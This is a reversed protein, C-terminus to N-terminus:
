GALPPSSTLTAREPVIPQRLAPYAITPMATGSWNLRRRGTSYRTAFTAAGVRTERSGDAAPELDAATLTAEHEVLGYISQLDVWVGTQLRARLIARIEDQRVIQSEAEERSHAM